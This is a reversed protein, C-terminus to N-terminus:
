TPWQKLSNECLHPLPEASFILARRSGREVQDSEGAPRRREWSVTAISNVSASPAKHHLTNERRGLSKIANAKTLEMPKCQANKWDTAHTPM